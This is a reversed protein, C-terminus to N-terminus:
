LINPPMKATATNSQKACPRFKKSFHVSDNGCAAKFKMGYFLYLMLCGTAYIDLSRTLCISGNNINLIEPAVYGLANFIKQIPATKGNEMIKKSNGFDLLQGVGINGNQLSQGMLFFNADNIDGHIYGANHVDKLSKLIEEIIKTAVNPAANGGNRLPFENNPEKQCEELLDSLFCGRQKNEDTIQEMVIFLSETADFVKGEIIMKDADLKGWSAVARGTKNAIIQGIENEHM